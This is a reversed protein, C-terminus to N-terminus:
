SLREHINAGEGVKRESDSAREGDSLRPSHVRRAKGITLPRYKYISRSYKNAREIADGLYRYAILTSHQVLEGARELSRFSTSCVTLYNCGALDEPSFLAM